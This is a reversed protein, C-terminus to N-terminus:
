MDLIPNWNRMPLIFDTYQLAWKPYSSGNWNRMPLIFDLYVEKRWPKVEKTEIGWLYSLIRSRIRKKRRTARTEIGWLYSLIMSGCGRCRWRRRKLEEYTLYFWDLFQVEDAVIEPKLEEYTLYFGGYRGWGMWTKRTEIGWLYSLIEGINLSVLESIRNWNRMPLIFDCHELDYRGAACCNWNRM